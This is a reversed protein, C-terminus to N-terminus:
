FSLLVGSMQPIAISLGSTEISDTHFQNGTLLDTLTVPGSINIWSLLEQPFNVHVTQDNRDFSVIVLIRQQVTYRVYMYIRENFNSQSQNALLLEYFKGAFLAENSQAVNFLKSYFERLNKQSDSLKGGDYQGGNIWKQHEPVGWYDFITTRGDKDGFGELGDGPEGVEQGFYIMVPGNSLTACIIMGPVGYWANGAYTDSAVRQEDHNEMFRLMHQDFGNTENNWVFNIDWVTAGYENTTLKRVADFIGTKDYLYDFKGEFIYNRYDRVNYAEGIFILGPFDTKLKGIVWGWFEFPVNEVM